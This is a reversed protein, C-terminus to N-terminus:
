SIRAKTTDHLWVDAPNVPSEELQLDPTETSGLMKLVIEHLGRIDSEDLRSPADTSDEPMKWSLEQHLDWLVSLEDSQYLESKSSRKTDAFPNSPIPRGVLEEIKQLDSNDADNL